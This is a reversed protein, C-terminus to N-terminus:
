SCTWPEAASARSRSSGRMFRRTPCSPSGTSRCIATSSTSPSRACTPRAKARSLGVSRLAGPDTAIIQAPTPTDGDYLQTTMREYITRAAKTSLQQGVVARVLAGYADPPRGRRRQEDGLPGIRDVLRAMAADRRLVDLATLPDPGAHRGAHAERGPQRRERAHPHLRAVGVNRADVGREHQTGRDISIYAPHRKRLQSTTVKPRVRVVRGEVVRGDTPNRLERELHRRVLAQDLGRDM